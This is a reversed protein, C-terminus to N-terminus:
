GAAGFYYGSVQLLYDRPSVLSSRRVSNPNVDLLKFDLEPPAEAAQSGALGLTMALVGISKRMTGGQWSSAAKDFVCFRGAITTLVLVRKRKGTERMPLSRMDSRSTDSESFRCESNRDRADMEIILSPSM